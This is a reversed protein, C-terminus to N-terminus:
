ESEKLLNVCNKVSDRWYPINIQFKSKIKTKDLLSYNPRKAPTPFQDSGIANIKCNLKSYTTIAKAFDYWSAVGENTYHYIGPFHNTKKNQYSKDIIEDISRALDPAFTPTGIQDAVVNLEPKSKALNYITKLFNKGFQSYLWATRIIYANPNIELIRLEGELKSKGYVSVPHTSDSETYPTSSNGDFVYDTSIHILICSTDKCIEALNNPGSKNILFAAEQDEEAKDVQTYAGCNVFYAPKEREFIKVISEKNTIDLEDKTYFVYNHNKNLSISKFSKGLQGNAGSVLIKIM